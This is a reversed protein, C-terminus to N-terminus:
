TPSVARTLLLSAFMLSSPKANEGGLKRLANTALNLVWYDGRSNSRWVRKSNTYILLKERDESWTYDHISLPASEGQPTLQEASVLIDKQLTKPNYVVIDKGVSQGAHEGTSHVLTSDEIATYGSGDALWRIRGIHDSSFENDQYIRKLTLPAPQQVQPSDGHSDTTQCAILASGIVASVLLKKFNILQM